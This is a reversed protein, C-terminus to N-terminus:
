PRALYQRAERFVATFRVVFPGNVPPQRLVKGYIGTVAGRADTPKLLLKLDTLLPMLSQIEAEHASLRVILGDQEWPIVSARTLDHIKIDPLCRRTGREELKYSLAPCM